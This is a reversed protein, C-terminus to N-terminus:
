LSRMSRALLSRRGLLNEAHLAVQDFARGLGHDVFVALTYFTRVAPAEVLLQPSASSWVSALDDNWPNKMKHPTAAPRHGTIKKNRFDDDSKDTLTSEWPICRRVDAGAVMLPM